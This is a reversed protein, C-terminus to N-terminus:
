VLSPVNPRDPVAGAPSNAGREHRLWSEFVYLYWLQRPVMGTHAADALERRASGGDIWGEQGSVGDRLAEDAAWRWKGALWRGVPITFGRKRGRAVRDGVRWRALERLVAKLSGGRLRIHYPLSSAFDWLDQDLFPSRAELGCFMTAGDVKTLYEGVFRTHRDHILFEDLLRRASDLNSPTHSSGDAVKRLRDGLLGRSLYYDLSNQVRTVGALGATAYDLFHAARRLRGSAPEGNRVSSWLSVAQSPLLRAVQQAWYFHRHEPYGLFCDDGGDGTLLVTASSRVARSVRLLGLASSCAFPESYASILEDMAPGEEAALDIIQHDLDLSRATRSADASEDAPDGPTRVTFVRVQGGAQKLAWCILSSDVGGSLLAGVPVDAELRRKVAALLLRESEDVAEQFSLAGSSSVPRPSWYCRQEIRGDSWELITAAPVKALGRYITKDDPVYGFRFFDAVAVEDLDGAFGGSQLARVTSGFAIAGKRIAYILPKVGLRDRVLFLKRAQADWLGFAFMGRLRAVLRDIGWVRYGHLLVETDTRSRFQQGAEALETRLEAFNYIAGNFVVGLERDPTVMPQRGAPSLDFIALRRHGLVAGDWTELGADDPGRRALSTMMERVSWEAARPAKAGVIGAIGCM